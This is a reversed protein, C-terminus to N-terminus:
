NTRVGEVELILKINKSVIAGGLELLKNWYLGYDFRNILGVATFGARRNGNFDKVAGLFEGELRIEKTVDRITLYGTVWVENGQKVGSATQQFTINPFQKVNLFDPSRLHDDRKEVETDLSNVDITITTNELKKTIEDFDFSGSFETFRGQVKAIVMHRASLGIYTHEPDIDYSDAFASPTFLLLASLAATFIKEM